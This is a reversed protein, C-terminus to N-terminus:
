SKAAEPKEEIKVGLIMLHASAVKMLEANTALIRDQQDLIRHILRLAELSPPIRFYDEPIKLRAM